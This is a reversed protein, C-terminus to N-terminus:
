EDCRSFCPSDEFLIGVTEAGVLGDFSFCSKGVSDRDILVAKRVSPRPIGDRGTCGLWLVLVCRSPEGSRGSVHDLGDRGGMGVDYEATEKLLSTDSLVAGLRNGGGELASRGM